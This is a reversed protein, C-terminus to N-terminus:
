VDLMINTVGCYSVAFLIKSLVKIGSNVTKGSLSNGYRFPVRYESNHVTEMDLHYETNV